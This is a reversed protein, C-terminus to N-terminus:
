LVVPPYYSFFPAPHPAPVTTHNKRMKDPLDLIPLTPNRLRGKKHSRSNKEQLWSRSRSWSWNRVVYIKKKNNHDLLIDLIVLLVKVIYM